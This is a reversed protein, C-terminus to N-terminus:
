CHYVIRLCARKFAAPVELNTAEQVILGVVWRKYPPNKITLKVMEM